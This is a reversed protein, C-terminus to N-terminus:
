KGLEQESDSCFNFIFLVSESNRNRMMITVWILIYCSIPYLTPDSPPSNKSPSSAQPTSRIPTFHSSLSSISVCSLHSPPDFLFPLSYASVPYSSALLKDTMRAPRDVILGAINIGSSGSDFAWIRVSVMGM